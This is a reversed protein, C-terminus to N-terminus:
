GELSKSKLVKHVFKFGLENADQIDKISAHFAAVWDFNPSGVSLYCDRMPASLVKQEFADADKSQESLVAIRVDSDHEKLEKVNQVEPWWDGSLLELRFSRYMRSKSDGLTVFRVGNGNPYIALGSEVGDYYGFAVVLAFGPNRRSSIPALLSEQFNSSSM